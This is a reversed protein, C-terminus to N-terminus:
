GDSLGSQVNLYLDDGRRTPTLKPNWAPSRPLDDPSFWPGGPRRPPTSLEAEPSLLFGSGPTPQRTWKGAQQTRTEGGFHLAAAREAGVRKALLSSSTSVHSTPTSSRDQPPVPPLVPLLVPAARAQSPLPAPARAPQGRIHLPAPTPSELMLEAPNRPLPKRAPSLDLPGPVPRRGAAPPSPVTPVAAPPPSHRGPSARRLDGLAPPPFLSLRDSRGPIRPYTVPSIGASRPSRPSEVVPSLNSQELAGDPTTYEAADAASSAITTVSLESVKSDSRDLGRSSKRRPPPRAAAANQLMQEYSNPPPLTRPLPNSPGPTVTSPLSYNSYVSSSRSLSAQSTQVQPRFQIPPGLQARQPRSPMHFPAAPATAPASPAPQAQTPPPPYRPADRATLPSCGELEAVRSRRRDPNGLVWNGWKDAVYYTTASLPAASPPPRWILAGGQGDGDGDEAFETVVSDRGTSPMPPPPLAVPQVVPQPQREDQPITITLIPKPPTAVRPVAQQAALPRGWPSSAATAGQLSIALGIADTRGANRPPPSRPARAPDVNPRHLNVPASIQLVQPSWDSKRSLSWSDRMKAFAGATNERKRSQRCGRALVLIAMIVVIAGAAGLAIGAIQSGSLSGKDAPTTTQAAASSTTTMTTPVVITPQVQTFTATPPRTATLLTTPLAPTPAVSPAARSNPPLVMTALITSHTAPAARPQGNCM